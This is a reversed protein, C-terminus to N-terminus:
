DLSNGATHRGSLRRIDGGKQQVRIVGAVAGNVYLARRTGQLNIGEAQRLDAYSLAQVQVTIPQQIYNPTRSFDANLTPVTSRLLVAVTNPNIATIISNAVARLNM